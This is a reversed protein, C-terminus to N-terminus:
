HYGVSILENCKEVVFQYLFFSNFCEFTLNFLFSLYDHCVSNLMNNRYFLFYCSGFCKLRAHIDTCLLEVNYLM